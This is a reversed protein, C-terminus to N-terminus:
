IYKKGKQKEKGSKNSDIMELYTKSLTVSPVSRDNLTIVFNDEIKEVIFDPTIQNM